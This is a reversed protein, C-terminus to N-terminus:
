FIWNMCVCAYTATFWWFAFYCHNEKATPVSTVHSWLIHSILKLRVPMCLHLFLCRALSLSPGKVSVPTCCHSAGKFLMWKRLLQVDARKLWAVKASPKTFVKGHTGSSFSFHTMVFCARMAGVECVVNVSDLRSMGGQNEGQNLDETWYFNFQTRM